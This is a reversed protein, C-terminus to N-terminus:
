FSTDSTLHASQYCFPKNRFPIISISFGNIPETRKPLLIYTYTNQSSRTVKGNIMQVSTSSGKQPGWVLQFDDTPAWSFDSPSHEGEVIFVVNFREDAGVINLVDVKITSQALASISLLLVSLASAVKKLM